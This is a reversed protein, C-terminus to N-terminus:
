IPNQIGHPAEAPLPAKTQASRSGPTTNSSGVQGPTSGPTNGATNTASGIARKMIRRLQRVLETADEFEEDGIEERDQNVDVIAYKAIRRCLERDRMCDFAFAAYELKVSLRMPNSPPLLTDALSVAEIFCEAAKPIYDIAPILFAGAPKPPTIPSLGPPLKIANMNLTFPDNTSAPSLGRVPGGNMPNPLPAQAAGRDPAKGKRDPKVRGAAPMGNAHSESTRPPTATMVPVSILSASPNNHFLVFIHYFSARLKYALVRLEAILSVMPIIYQDVIVLGERSLWIIQHYQKLSKTDRTTDLRRLRRARVLKKSLIVSLGLIKFLMASLLPNDEGLGKAYQGLYKQDVESSAM